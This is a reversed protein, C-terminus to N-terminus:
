TRNAACFLEFLTLSPSGILDIVEPELEQDNSPSQAWDQVRDTENTQRAPDAETRQNNVAGSRSKSSIAELAARKAEM